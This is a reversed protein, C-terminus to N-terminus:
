NFFIHFQLRSEFASLHNEPGQWVNVQRIEFDQALQFSQSVELLGTRRPKLDGLVGFNTLYEAKLKYWTIPNMVLGSQFAPGLRYNNELKSSAHASLNSFFYAINRDSFFTTSAGIGVQGEWMRCDNPCLVGRETTWRLDLKWSPRRDLATMPELSTISLLTLEEIRFEKTQARYKINVTPFDIHAYRKFGRDSDLLDHYATKFRFGLTESNMSSNSHSEHGGYFILSSTAHGLDPQNDKSIEPLRKLEEETLTGLSARHSLISERAERLHKEFVRKKENRAFDMYAILADLVMRSSVENPDVSKDLVHFFTKKEDPTLAYFKQYMIKSLSPRFEIGQVLSNHRTVNKVGEAPMMYFYYKDLDFDPRVVELAALIQYACNQDFFYYYFYSNTEVEWLHSILYLTEEPSFNLKYEWLDRSEVNNYENVKVYYPLSSWQGVYGGMVGFYVFAFPNEDPSVVAAYNVGMDLLGVKASHFKLLLHGFMSSPNNPYASSFVLSVGKPNNFTDLFGNFVRCETKPFQIKLSKEIFIRRAPFACRMPQKLKGWPKNDHLAQITAKLEAEPNTVGESSLFFDPGDVISATKGFLGARYHLLKLWAPDKAAKAIPDSDAYALFSITLIILISIRKLKHM